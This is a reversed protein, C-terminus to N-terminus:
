CCADAVLAAASAFPQEIGILTLQHNWSSPGCGSCLPGGLLRETGPAVQLARGYDNNEVAFQEDSKGSIGYHSLLKDVAGLKAMFDM